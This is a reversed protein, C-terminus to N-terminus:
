WAIRDIAIQGHVIRDFISPRSGDREHYSIRKPKSM